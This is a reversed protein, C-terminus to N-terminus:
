EDGSALRGQVANIDNAWDSSDKVVTPKLLIVLERKSSSQDGKGFLPGLVTGLGPVKSRGDSTTEKMLGGIVIVQGDEARVVNDTENISNVAFPM